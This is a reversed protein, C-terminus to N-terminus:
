YRRLLDRVLAEFFQNMQQITESDENHEHGSSLMAATGDRLVYLAYATEALPISWAFCMNELFDLCAALEQEEGGSWKDYSDLIREIMARLEFTSVTRFRGVYRNRTLEAALTAAALARNEVFLGTPTQTPVSSQKCSATWALLKGGPISPAM